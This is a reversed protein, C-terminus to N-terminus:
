KLVLKRGKLGAAKASSGTVSIAPKSRHGLLGNGAVGVALCESPLQKKEMM